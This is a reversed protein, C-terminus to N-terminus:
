MIIVHGYVSVIPIYETSNKDNVDIGFSFFADNGYRKSARFDPSFLSWQPASGLLFLLIILKLFWRVCVCM